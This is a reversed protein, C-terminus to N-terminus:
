IMRGRLEFDLAQPRFRMRLCFVGCDESDREGNVKTMKASATDMVIAEAASEL